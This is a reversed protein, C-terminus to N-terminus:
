YDVEIIRVIKFRGDDLFLKIQHTEGVQWGAHDNQNEEM